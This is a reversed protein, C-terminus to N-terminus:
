EQGHGGVGLWLGLRLRPWRSRVMARVRAMGGVGLWLGLGLRPWRSRVMARIRAPGM